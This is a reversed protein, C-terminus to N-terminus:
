PPKNCKECTPISPTKKLTELRGFYKILCNKEAPLWTNRSIKNHDASQTPTRDSEVDSTYKRKKTSSKPKSFGVKGSSNEFDSNEATLVKAHRKRSHQRIKKRNNIDYNDDKDANVVNECPDSTKDDIKSDDDSNGDFDEDSSSDNVCEDKDDGIAVELLHAVKTMEALPTPMQYYNKYIDKHHGMFSALREVDTDEIGIMATYTAIQKRLSTGRLSSPVKAGCAASFKLMLPCARFYPKQLANKTPRGFLYNNSKKVGALLRYKKMLEVYELIYSHVLMSVPKGLKGRNSIRVFKKAIEQAPKSLQSFLDNNINRGVADQNVFQDISLQETDGARKQKQSKKVAQDEIAKRNVLQQVEDKWLDIFEQVEVKRDKLEKKICESQFRSAVKRVLTTMKTAVAPTDFMQTKKNWKAIIKLAKMAIDVYKPHFISSYEKIEPNLDMITIKHKGLYRLDSRIMDHHRIHPYKDCLFNGYVILIEDKVNNDNLVPFITTWLLENAREHIYCVKRRSMSLIDHVGPQHDPICKKTHIRSTQKSFYANCKSCPVYDSAKQKSGVQCRRSTIIIGKNLEKNTNHLLTGENRIAAIKDTRQQSKLPLKLFEKVSSESKHRSELHRAFKTVLEKCYKCFYQKSTIAPKVTTDDKPVFKSSPVVLNDVRFPIIAEFSSSKNISAIKSGDNKNSDNSKAVGSSDPDFDPDNNNSVKSNESQTTELQSEEVSELDVIKKSNTAKNEQQNIVPNNQLRFMTIKNKKEPLIKSDDSSEDSSTLGGESRVKIKWKELFSKSNQM